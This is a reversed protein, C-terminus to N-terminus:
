GVSDGPGMSSMPDSALHRKHLFYRTTVWSLATLTILGAFLGAAALKFRTSTPATIATTTEAPKTPEPPTAITEGVISPNDVKLNPVPTNNVKVDGAPTITVVSVSVSTSTSGGANTCTLTYTSGKTLEKTNETGSSPKSGSWDGSATCSTPSNTTSWSLTSKQKSEITSPTATLNITPKAVNPNIPNTPTSVSLTASASASGGTNSCNLTYTKATGTSIVGTSQTGSAAKTGSWDGSATCSTPSKTASWSLTSSGGSNITSPSLSITVTPKTPVVVLAVSGTTSGGANACILTYTYTKVTSLTGTSQSGSATKAGSWDGSATCSTPSNTASWSITSSGGSNITSPNVSLTITPKAPPAPPTASVAVTASSSGTGGANTCALTYTYTKVTSLTGTSQSGSATKAGSWDGSATCSSPANTASWSLTSANGQQLSTPSSTISVVPASPVSPPPAPPPSGGGGSSGYEDAGADYNTGVPRGHGDIDSSPLGLSAAISPTIFDKAQSNASLYLGNATTVPGVIGINSLSYQPGSVWKDTAGCNLKSTWQYVNYEYTADLCNWASLLINGILRVNTNRLNENIGQGFTNNKITLNTMDGYNLAYFGDNISGNGTTTAFFNNELLVDVPYGSGNYGTFSLDFIACREFKNNRMTFRTTGAVQLCETHVSSNTRTWDHWYVGDFLLDTAWASGNGASPAIQPHYDVGPGVSGGYMSIRKTGNGSYGLYGQVVVNKLTVDTVDNATIQWQGVTMNNVEVFDANTHLSGLRVAAASAPRFYVWSSKTGTITQNGYTGGNMLVTDGPAAVQYARNMTLCPAAQTCPNADNGNTALYHNTAAKTEDISSVINIGIFFSAVLLLVHMLFITRTPFRLIQQDVGQQTSRSQQIHLDPTYPEIEETKKSM